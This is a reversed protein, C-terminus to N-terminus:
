ARPPPSDPPRDLPRPAAAVPATALSEFSPAALQAVREPLALTGLVPLVAYAASDAGACWRPANAPVPRSSSRRHMPCMVATSHDCSCAEDAAVTAAGARPSAALVLTASCVAAVQCVALALAYHVLRARVHRVLSTV